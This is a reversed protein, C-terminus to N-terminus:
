RNLIQNIIKIDEMDKGRKGFDPHKAKLYKEVELQVGVMPQSKYNFHIIVNELNSKSGEKWTIIKKTPEFDFAGM